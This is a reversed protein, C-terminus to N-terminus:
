GLVAEGTSTIDGSSTHPSPSQLAADGGQTAPSWPHCQGEVLFNLSVRHRSSDRSRGQSGRRRRQPLAPNHQGQGKQPTYSMVTPSQLLKPHDKKDEMQRCVGLARNISQELIGGGRGVWGVCSGPCWPVLASLPHCHTKSHKFHRRSISSPKCPARKGTPHAKLVCHLRM